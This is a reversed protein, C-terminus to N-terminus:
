KKRWEERCQGYPLRRITMRSEVPCGTRTRARHGGGRIATGRIVIDPLLSTPIENAWVVYHFFTFFFRVKRYYMEAKAIKCFKRPFYILKSGRDAM